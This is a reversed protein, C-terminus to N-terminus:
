SMNLTFFMVIGVWIVLGVGYSSAVIAFSKNTNVELEKGLMYALIFWYSLEFLNLIQLPYIFWVQINNYGVINLVSLPYFYQLDNLDYDQNFVYFWVTKILIALLFIFEAKLVINLIKKYKIDKDLFVFVINIVASILSVKLLLMLPIIVLSLWGIQKRLNLFDFIQEETLQYSLSDVLRSDFDLINKFIFDFFIILISLFAYLFPNKNLM